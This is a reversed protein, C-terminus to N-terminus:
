LKVQHGSELGNQLGDSRDMDGLDLTRGEKHPLDTLKSNGSSCKAQSLSQQSELWGPSPASSSLLYKIVWWCTFAIQCLVDSSM